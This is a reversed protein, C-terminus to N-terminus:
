IVVAFGHQEAIHQIRETVAYETTSSLAHWVVLTAPATSQTVVPTPVQTTCAVAVMVWLCILFQHWGRTTTM